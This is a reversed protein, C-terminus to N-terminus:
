QMKLSYILSIGSRVENLLDKVNINSEEFNREAGKIKIIVVLLREVIEDSFIAGPIDCYRSM